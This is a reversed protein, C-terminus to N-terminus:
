KKGDLSPLVGANWVYGTLMGSDSAHICVFAGDGGGVGGRRRMSVRGRTGDEVKVNIDKKEKIMKTKRKVM